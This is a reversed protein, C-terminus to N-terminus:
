RNYSKATEASPIYFKWTSKFDRSLEQGTLKARLLEIPISSELLVADHFAKATMKGSDVLERSLSRMQLGGVLYSCQALPNLGYSTRGSLHARVEVTASQMEHGVRNALLDIYEDVNMKELHYSLSFIIRACRHM